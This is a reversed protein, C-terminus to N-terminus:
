KSEGEKEIAAILSQKPKGLHTGPAEGNVATVKFFGRGVSTEGGIQLMGFNIAELGLLILEEIAEDDKPYRIELATEGGYWPKENFLAGAAAGGTFRDIKVRTINRYGDEKKNAIKLQSMGFVIKSVSKDKEDESVFGFVEDLYVDANEYRQKLLRHLGSRFAGAWSTGLIVPKGGISIHKYDPTKEAERLGEYINRTDRIMISGELILKAIITDTDGTYESAKAEQWGDTGNWDFDLWENLIDVNGPALDFEKKLTTICDVRGFGRRTKAGFALQGSKIAGIVQLFKDEFDAANDNKRIILLLRLTFAAGTSIAEYDYKKQELAVKNDHDLAVGDFETVSDGPLDADFVWLPSIRDEGFLEKAQPCLSRLVGAITSGPLFPRGSSDRLIDRDTNEGFGSGILAPSTFRCLSKVAIRKVIPNEKDERM